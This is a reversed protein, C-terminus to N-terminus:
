RDFYSEVLHAITDDMLSEFEELNEGFRTLYRGAQPRSLEKKDIQYQIEVVSKDERPMINWLVYHIHLEDFSKQAYGCFDKIYVDGQPGLCGAEIRYIVTLRQNLPVSLNM